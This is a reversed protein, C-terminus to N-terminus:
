TMIRRKIKRLPTLLKSLILSKGSIKVWPSPVFFPRDQYLVAPFKFNKSIKDGLEYKSKDFKRRTSSRELHTVHLYPTDLFITKKSEQILQNNKGRYGELPYPTDDVHLNPIRKNIARLNFHGKRGLIQYQGAKEEQMHYIDGVPIMTPVVIADLDQGEWNIKEVLKKISEDWWVEDGDLLIIWDCDSEELMKQRLETLGSADVEGMKRIIIKNKKIKEIEEIIKITSDQSGTDYILIKDVYDIISMISFWIFRDENNVITNAWIKM